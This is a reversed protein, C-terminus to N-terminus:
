WLHAPTLAYLMAASDYFYHYDGVVVDSWRALEQTLYYPCVQHQLALTRVKDPTLMPEQSLAQARAAPLRDYFGQALPCSEGQCAKDPREGRKGCGSERHM